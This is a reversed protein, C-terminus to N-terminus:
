KPYPPLPRPAHQAHDRDNLAHHVHVPDRPLGARSRPPGGGRSEGIRPSPSATAGLFRVAPRRAVLPRLLLCGTLTLDALRITAGALPFSPTISTPRPATAVVNMAPTSFTRRPLPRGMPETQSSPVMRRPRRVSPRAGRSRLNTGNARSSSRTKAAQSGI